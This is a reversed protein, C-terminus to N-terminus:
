FGKGAMQQLRKIRDEIAPHTSFLSTAEADLPTYICAIAMKKSSDLVEVRADKSIKNLASALAEPHRTIFGATADAAYERTRSVAMQLLPAILLNFIFFTIGSAFFVLPLPSKNEGGSTVSGARFLFEALFGFIGVGSILMMNLRIDRNGIHAMEHAIVGQLELPELKNIIGTTLAVSATKPDRGTAFANLSDDDILYVKPRPLGAALATNEVLNFIKKYESTTPKIEVAGAFGLMMKDGFLWSIGMWLLATSIVIWAFHKTYYITTSLTNAQEIPSTANLYLLAYLVLFFTALLSVPFMAVLFLTKRNNQKIHDYVTKSM